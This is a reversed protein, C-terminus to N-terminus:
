RPAATSKSLKRLFTRRSAFFQTTTPNLDATVDKHLIGAPKPPTIFPGKIAKSVFAASALNLKIISEKLLLRLCLHSVILLRGGLFMMVKVLHVRSCASEKSTEPPKPLPTM